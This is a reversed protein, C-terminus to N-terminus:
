QYTNKIPIAGQIEQDQFVVSAGQWKLSDLVMEISLGSRLHVKKNTRLLDAVITAPGPLPWTM